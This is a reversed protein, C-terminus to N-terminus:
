LITYEQVVEKDGVDGSLIIQFDKVMVMKRQSIGTGILIKEKQVTQIKVVVILVGYQALQIRITELDQNLDLGIGGNGVMM